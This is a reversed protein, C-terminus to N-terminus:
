GRGTRASASSGRRSGRANASVDLDYGHTSSPLREPGPGPDKTAKRRNLARAAEDVGLVIPPCVLLALLWQWPPVATGFVSQMPPVVVILLVFVLEFLIGWLVLPNSAIGVTRLSAREVRAALVTGIQCAVIALFTMTTAQLYSEHLGTGRGVDDGPRWGASLLPGLFALLVLVTSTGGLLGWARILLGRDIIGASRSRPPRAMVDPEAPERALALAPLTETGLDIALIQMVTLPLPIAGGSLAYLLFPVVEPTAHAFIYTVFKRINAFVRRGEEVASVIDAFDDDTLVMTAAERAVDTGSNGMAVGIDARHLAPADNVGDGTVAVVQGEAQLAEVVHLKTAPTSRAFVIEHGSDLLESLEARTSSGLESDAVVSLGPKGGSAAAVSGIGIRRAIAAATRGNDGTVVHIRIGADHCRAVADAASPRPPDELALLGLLELDSEAESRTAPPAPADRRAVALVRLGAEALEGMARRVATAQESASSGQERASTCLPLVSEPAGKVVILYRDPSDTRQVVSMLRLEPDFRFVKERDADRRAVIEAATAGPVASLLAIEMPDGTGTTATTCIAAASLLGAHPGDLTPEDDLSREGGDARVRAVRMRNQTLTGTKDTCIVTTSGLTEVASLRKVLAGRQALRRVSGALALSITPLLGEPVNAVLLGIAFLLAEGLPLGAIFWGLPIFAVGAIVAVAAILWAIHDVEQELPSPVRKGRQSLAAIRGLETAMGTDTVVAAAEGAVCTCGSFVVDPASLSPPGHAAPPGSGAVREVPVSEGTLASLDVEVAGTLLRADASIAAGEEVVLVDGPVLDEAPVIIRRADRVVTAQQPLYAQLTEVARTAQRERVLAFLANLVVVAGIAIALAPLGGVLSLVAAGELLLALPHVIQRVLDEWVSGGATATLRNPGHQILRRAAEQSTLGVRDAGKGRLARDAADTM